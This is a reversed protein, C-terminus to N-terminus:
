EDLREQPEVWLVPLDDSLISECLDQLEILSNRLGQEEEMALRHAMRAYPCEVGRQSSDVFHRYRAAQFQLLAASHGILRNLQDSYQYMPERLSSTSESRSNPKSSM